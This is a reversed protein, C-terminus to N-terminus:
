HDAHSGPCNSHRSVSENAQEGDDDDACGDSVRLLLDAHRHRRQAGSWEDEIRSFLVLDTINIGSRDPWNRM